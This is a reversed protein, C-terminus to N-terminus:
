KEVKKLLAELFHGYEHEAKLFKVAAEAAVTKEENKFHELERKLLVKLYEKEDKTFM